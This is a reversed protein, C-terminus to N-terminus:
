LRPTAIQPLGSGALSSWRRRRSSAQPFGSQRSEEMMITSRRPTLNAFAAKVAPATQPDGLFHEFSVRIAARQIEPNFSHLGALVQEQLKPEHMLNTFSSAADLVQAYNKPDAQSRAHLTSRGARSGATGM